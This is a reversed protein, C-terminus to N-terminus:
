TTYDPRGLPTIAAMYERMVERGTRGQEAALKATFPWLLFPHAGLRYLTTYDRERLAAREEVTLDRGELYAGPDGLFAGRASADRAVARLVKDIEYRSM